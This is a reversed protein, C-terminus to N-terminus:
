PRRSRAAKASRTRGSRRKSPMSARFACIARSQSAARAMRARVAGGSAPSLTSAGRRSAREHAGVVAIGDEHRAGAKGHLCPQRFALRRHGRVPLLGAEVPAQAFLGRPPGFEDEVVPRGVGVAMEVEARRQVLDELIDDHARLLHQAPIRDVHRAPVAMAQGDLPLDLLGPALLPAVLVGHRDALEPGVAAGERLVPDVHLPSLELPEAHDAVPVIGVGGHAERGLRLDHALEAAEQEVAAEVPAGPRHHPRRDLLRRQGLGLDLIVVVGGHDDGDGERHHLAREGGEVAGGHDDPRRRGPGDGAVAADGVALREAIEHEFHRVDRVARGHGGAGADGAGLRERRSEARVGADGAVADDGGAEGAAGEGAGDAGVGQAAPAVVKRHRQDRRVVDGGLLAGAEHMDRRAVAGLVELRHRLPVCAQRRVLPRDLGRRRHVVVAAEVVVHRAEGAAVDVLHVALHGIRQGGGAPQERAARQDM